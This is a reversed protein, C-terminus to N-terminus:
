PKPYTLENNVTRPAGPTTRVMTEITRAEDRDKATGRITVANTDASIQVAAPNSITSRKIMASLEYQLQSPVVTPQPLQSITVYPSFQYPPNIVIGTTNSTSSTGKGGTGGRGAAGSTSSTGAYGIAGGGASGTSGNFLPAGFGGPSNNSSQSNSLVGQYYPNAYYESLFNSTSVSNGTNGGSATPATISPTAGLTSLTTGGLSTGGGGASGGGAAGGGGMAGGGGGAGGGGAGGGGAQAFVPTSTAVAFLM